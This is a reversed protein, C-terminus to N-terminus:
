VNMHHLELWKYGKNLDNFDQLDEALKTPDGKIDLQKSLYEQTQSLYTKHLDHSRHENRRIDRPDNIDIRM